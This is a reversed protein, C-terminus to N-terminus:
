GLFKASKTQELSVYPSIIQKYINTLEDYDFNYFIGKEMNYTNIEDIKNIANILNFKESSSLKEYKNKDIRNENDDDENIERVGFREIIKLLIDYDEDGGIRQINKFLFMFEDYNYIEQIEEIEKNKQMIKEMIEEKEKKEKIIKGYDNILEGIIGEFYVLREWEDDTIEKTKQSYLRNILELDLEDM